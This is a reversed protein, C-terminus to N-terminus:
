NNSNKVNYPECKDPDAVWKGIRPNEVMLSGDILTRVVVAVCGLNVIYDGTKFKNM